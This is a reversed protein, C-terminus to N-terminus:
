SEVHYGLLGIVIGYSFVLTVTVCTIVTHECYTITDYPNSYQVRKKAHSIWVTGTIFWILCLTDSKFLFFTWWNSKKGYNKIIAFTLCILTGIGAIVLYIPLRNDLPCSNFYISGIIVQTIPIGFVLIIVAICLLIVCPLALKKDISHIKRKIFNEQENSSFDSSKMVPTAEIDYKSEM